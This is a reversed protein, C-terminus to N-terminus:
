NNSGDTDEKGSCYHEIRKLMAKQCCIIIHTATREEAYDTTKYHLYDAAIDRKVGSILKDIGNQLRDLKLEAEKRRNFEDTYVEETVANVTPAEEIVEKCYIDRDSCGLTDILADADIYRSM